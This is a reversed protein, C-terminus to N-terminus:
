KISLVAAIRGTKGNDARYSFFQRHNCATCVGAVDINEPK